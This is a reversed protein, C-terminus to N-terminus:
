VELAGVEAAFLVLARADSIPKIVNDAADTLAFQFDRCFGRMARVRRDPPLRRNIKKIVADRKKPTSAASLASLFQATV